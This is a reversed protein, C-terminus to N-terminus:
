RCVGKTFVVIGHTSAVCQNSYTIGNCGCVPDYVQPCADNHKLYREKCKDKKCAIALMSVSTIAIFFLFKM